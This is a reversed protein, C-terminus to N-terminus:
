EAVQGPEQRHDSAKHESRARRAAPFWRLGNRVIGSFLLKSLSYSSKTTFGLCCSWYRGRKGAFYARRYLLGVNLQDGLATGAWPPNDHRVRDVQVGAPM